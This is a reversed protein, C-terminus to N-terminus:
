GVDPVAVLATGGLLCGSLGQPGPNEELIGAQFTLTVNIGGPASYVLTGVARQGNVAVFQDGVDFDGDRDLVAGSSDIRGLSIDANNGLTKARMEPVTFGAGIAHCRAELVLGGISLVQDFSEDAATRRYDLEAADLGDVKDARPVTGLTAEDIDAGTLNNDLVKGTGVANAGLKANTVATNALKSTAVGLNALDPTKVENDVIDDSYVTNSGSLAAATGSLSVFLAILAVVMAPSPRAKTWNKVLLGGMRAAEAARERV